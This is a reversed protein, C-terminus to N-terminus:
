ASNNAEVSPNIMVTTVILRVKQRLSYLIASSLNLISHAIILTWHDSIM